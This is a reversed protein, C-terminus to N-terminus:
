VAFRRSCLTSLTVCRVSDSCRTMGQLSFLLANLCSWIFKGCIRMEADYFFKKKKPWLFGVALKGSGDMRHHFCDIQALEQKWTTGGFSYNQFGKAKM